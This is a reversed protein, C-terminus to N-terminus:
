PNSISCTVVVGGQPRPQIALMAGIVEARYRMIRLGMGEVNQPEGQLGRGDDAVSLTITGGAQALSILVQSPRGHKVANDVAEQAIRYLHTAVTNDQLLVPPDCRLRCAVGFLSSASAALEELASMLSNGGVPLPSLGRALSRTHSVAQTVLVAIKGADAGEPISNRSLKEELGKALFAIGTLQQGLGDHLDRGTREQEQEIADLLEEQLLTREEFAKAVDEKAKVAQERATELAIAQEKLTEYLQANHMATAAQSALTSLFSIEDESFDHEEKTFIGLTGVPEQKAIMPIALYSVLGHRRVFGPHRTNPDTQLNRSIAATKSELAIKSYGIGHEREAFHAKWEEESINRCAIPVLRGSERNWLMIHPVIPYPLLLVLKDLLINLIPQLDLTSTITRNIEHLTTDRQRRLQLEEEARKREAAADEIVRAVENVENVPSTTTQPLESRGLAAAANSLGAISKSIRRGFFAAMGVGALLLALGGGTVGLLTRWVPTDVAAAHIGVTVTWGSFESRHLASYVELGERMVGRWVAEKNEKSKAVLLPGAEKGIFQEADRARAIISQKKDIVVAEWSESPKQQLLLKTLFIPSAALMLVYRLKGARLVPIAVGVLPNKVVQGFFLDSVAPKRTEVVRRFQDSPQIDPLASGFPRRVNLLQKRAPDALVITELDKRAEQVRLAENYFNKLDGSDLFESSALTELIGIWVLLERDVALSLARATDLLGNEVSRQQERGFAVIMVGAFILVPVLAAVVLIILHSRLRM